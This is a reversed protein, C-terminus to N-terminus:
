GTLLVRAWAMELLCRPARPSGGVGLGTEEDVFVSLPQMDHSQVVFSLMYLTGPVLLCTEM